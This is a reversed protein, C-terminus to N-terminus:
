SPKGIEEGGLENVIADVFPDSSSKSHNIAKEEIEPKNEMKTSYSINDKFQFVIRRGFYEHAKKTIFDIHYNFSQKDQQNVFISLKQGDLEVPKIKGLIPGLTLARESSISDIFSEWKKVVTEFNFASVIENNVNNIESATTTSKHEPAFNNVFNKKFGEETRVKPSYDSKKPEKVFSESLNENTIPLNSILESITSTKELGILHSLAIEIKLKQNQSFRLEQNAKNLFNLLRLIDGESFKDLYDLYRKKFIDASEILETKETLIVTMINRFHEILGDMFDIFNWGNEYIIKSVEFVAKHNKQLVADSIAFYVEDDILNLIKSVTTSEIKGARGSPPNGCFSVVQDFYSEADRLAGDAKKAILTLTKDDIEIGESLAIKSLLSKIVDLQIRRFDLRQCRSIITLPVKHADTTAFIFITHSPPEELTKLFANFSEKTLMHVEDIIYVKYKGKTPAYKVSERLTRMEDIGRNSAGDIEIIDLSQSNQISKCMECENCPESDVPNLCNLTKALIRATTTKGVGRPGTFLYAHAIRKDKIANKLTTTIHEQGVVDEFRQPRWKRATVIFSM